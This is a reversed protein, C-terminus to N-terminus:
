GEFINMYKRTNFFILYKHWFQAYTELVENVMLNLVFYGKKLLVGEDM